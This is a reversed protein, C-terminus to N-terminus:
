CFLSWHYGACFGGRVDIYTGNPMTVTTGPQVILNAGTAVIVTDTLTHTGSWVETGSITGNSTENTAVATPMFGVFGIMVSSLM